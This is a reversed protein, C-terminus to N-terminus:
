IVNLDVLFKQNNIDYVLFSNKFEFKLVYCNGVLGVQYILNVTFDWSNKSNKFKFYGNNDEFRILKVVAYWEKYDNMNDYDYFSEFIKFNKM